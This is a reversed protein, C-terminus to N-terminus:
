SWAGEREMIDACSGCYGDYGDGDNATSAGCKDCGEDFEPCEDEIIPQAWERAEGHHAHAGVFIFPHGDSRRQLVYRDNLPDSAVVWPKAGVLNAGPTDRVVLQVTAITANDISM